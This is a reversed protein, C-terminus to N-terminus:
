EIVKTDGRDIAEEILSIGQAASGVRSYSSCSVGTVHSSTQQWTAVVGVGIHHGHSIWYFPGVSNLEPVIYIVGRHTRTYTAA